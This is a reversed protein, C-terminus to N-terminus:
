FDCVADLRFGRKPEPVRLDDATDPILGDVDDIRGILMAQLKRHQRPRVGRPATKRIALSFLVELREPFHEEKRGPLEHVRLTAAPM